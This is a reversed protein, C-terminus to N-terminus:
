FNRTPQLRLIAGAAAVQVMPNADNLLRSLNSAAVASSTRNGGMAGLTYAAQARLEARSSTAHSVPIEVLTRTPDIRAVALAAAMRIEPPRESPGTRNVINVLDALAGGDKLEGCMQCALAAVESEEVPAFLAARIVDLEQVAGLKVMAEALQLEIVKRRAQTAFQLGSGAAERLLDIASRQGLEGLVYAANGRVEPDESRLLRGLPNLDVKVGCRHQAYMAAAQVSHSEDHLLPEVLATLEKLAFRGVSMAAVFRVGRNTDGLARRLVDSLHEKAGHLAEVANARLMPDSSEAAQLLVSIAPERLELASSPPASFDSGSVNLSPSDTKVGLMSQNKTTWVQQDPSNSCGACFVAVFLAALSRRIAHHWDSYIAM